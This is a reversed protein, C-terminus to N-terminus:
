KQKIPIPHPTFTKYLVPSTVKGTVKKAATDCNSNLTTRAGRRLYSLDCTWRGQVSLNLAFRDNNPNYSGTGTMVFDKAFSCENLTYLYRVGDTDFAFTGGLPCGTQTPTFGDWYYYEPLYAMETETWSLAELLDTFEAANTPAIPVYEEVTVGACNTVRKAPMRNNVLFQTVINDPCANGWGFIVHPGGQQTILFGNQLRSYVSQAGSLPTAPDATANLVLTPIGPAVLPEPRTLDTSAHPWFACPLDGYFLSALRPINPVVQDGADFFNQVRQEPTDGPYGYDQCEVGFFIADSYSPDAIVDLTQPDLGASMYLLRAMPVLSNYAASSTIARNFMMRDTETYLQGAAVLELDALTFLREEFGGLPLPFEITDAFNGLLETARDYGEVVNIDQLEPYNELIAKRLDAVCLPDDDCAQLTATLTDSFAQAQQAYFEHGTLTLDVVGDLLLGSLQKGYKAAYIQAYQSGYSEGYLWFKQVEMIKRFYELDEIAQDTGLYPLLEPNSLESVCNEAFTRASNALADKQEPTETRTDARYYESAAQPCALGGSLGMGRQDFFVIDFRRYISNAYGSTYSDALAVGSTGPGGTAVVFMGKRNANAAAPHVAFTVPIKRMDAPNFHDLPVEITVCTFISDNPCPKGGLKKLINVTSTRFVPATDDTNPLSTGAFSTVFIILILLCRFSPHNLIKM